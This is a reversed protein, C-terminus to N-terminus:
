PVVFVGRAVEIPQNMKWKLANVFPLLPARSAAESEGSVQGSLQKAGVMVMSRWEQNLFESKISVDLFNKHRSYSAPSIYSHYKKDFRINIRIGRRNMTIWLILGVAGGLLGSFPTVVSISGLLWSGALSPFILYHPLCFAAVFIKEFSTSPFVIELRSDPKYVRVAVTKPFIDPSLEQPKVLERFKSLKGTIDDIEQHTLESPHPMRSPESRPQGLPRRSEYESLIEKLDDTTLPKPPQRKEEGFIFRYIHRFFFLSAGLIGAVITWALSIGQVAAGIGKAHEDLFDLVPKLQPSLQTWLEGIDM